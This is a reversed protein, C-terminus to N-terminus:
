DTEQKSKQQNVIPYNNRKALAAKLLQIDELIFSRIRTDKCRLFEKKLRHIESLFISQETRNM